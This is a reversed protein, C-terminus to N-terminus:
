REEARLKAYAALARGAPVAFGMSSSDSPTHIVIGVLGGDRDLLPTGPEGRRDIQILGGLSRGEGLQVGRGTAVVIPHSVPRSGRSLKSPVTLQQGVSVSKAVAGSAPPLGKSALLKVLALGTAEDGSAPRGELIRGDGFTVRVRTAGKLPAYASLIDGRGDLLIGVASGRETTTPYEIDLDVVAIGEGKQKAILQRLEEKKEDILRQLDDKQAAETDQRGAYVTPYVTAQRGAVGITPTAREDQSPGEAQARYALDTGSVALASVVLLMGTMVKIKSLLMMKLVEGSLAAVGASVAGATAAEGVAFLSAARATSGILRTPMSASASEQAMLMALSGGSLTMGPRSLRRALLARARSLRSSVTGIPVGLQGAVEKHTKGELECLVIPIRYKEPLRSLERDLSEALDDRQDHPVVTPEPMDPVQDERGRRKARVARAKRATQYAVGYLWNGLKERYAISAAKRALVLFTAQFADEADHHDRLVRRCVGWVMPGHRHIIAEFVAGERRAVFRELLQGDTLTGTVGVGFLAQLDRVAMSM